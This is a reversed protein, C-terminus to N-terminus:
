YAILRYVFKLLFFIILIILAYFIIKHELIFSLIQLSFFKAQALPKELKNEDDSFDQSAEKNEILKIEEKAQEKTASVTESFDERLVDIENFFNSAKGTISDPIIESIGETTEEIKNKVVNQATSEEGDEEIVTVPIFIRKKETENNDLIISKDGFVSSIIKANIIHDGSTVKWSISVEKLQDEAIIIERSGLVINKDYFEIKAKLEEKEGNWIATYVKVTEDAVLKEQSFWIAGPIIGTPTSIEAQVYFFSGFFLIAFLYIIKKM